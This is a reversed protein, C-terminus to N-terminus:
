PAWSSGNWWRVGGPQYPDPYYGPGAFQARRARRRRNSEVVLLVTGVVIAILGAGGVAIGPLAEGFLSGLDRSVVVRTGPPGNIVVSYEGGAPTTFRVSATYIGGGRSLTESEDAPMASMPLPTGSAGTVTVDSPQLVTGNNTTFTFGPGGSQSGTLEYVAYTGRDLHETTSVPTTQVPADLAGVLGGGVTFVLLLVATVALAVGAGLVWWRPNRVWPRSRADPTSM